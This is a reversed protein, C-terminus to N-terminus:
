CRKLGPNNRYSWERGNKQQCFVLILFLTLMTEAGLEECCSKWKAEKAERAAQVAWNPYGNCSQTNPRPKASNKRKAGKKNTKQGLKRPRVSGGHHSSRAKGHAKWSKHEQNGRATKVCHKSGGKVGSPTIHNATKSRLQGKYASCGPLHDSGHPTLMEASLWPAIRPSVLALDTTSDTDGQWSGLGTPLPSTVPTFIIDGLSKGSSKGSPQQGTSGVHKVQHQLWWM